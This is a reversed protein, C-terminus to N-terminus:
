WIGPQGQYIPVVWIDTRTADASCFCNIEYISWINNNLHDKLRVWIRHMENSQTYVITDISQYTSTIATNDISYGEVGTAGWQTSRKVDVLSSTHASKISISIETTTTYSYRLYVEPATGEYLPLPIIIQSGTKSLNARYATPYTKVPEMESAELALIRTTNENDRDYLEVFNNDLNDMLKQGSDGIDTKRYAM